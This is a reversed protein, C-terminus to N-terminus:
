EYYTVQIEGALDGPKSFSRTTYSLEIRGRTSNYGLGIGYSGRTENVASEYSKMKIPDVLALNGYVFPVLGLKSLIPLDYFHVKGQLQLLSLKGMDDGTFNPNGQIYTKGPPERLGISKFGKINDTRYRDNFYTKCMEFPTFMGFSLCSEFVLRSTLKFYRSYDIDVKHFRADGYAIQNKLILLNGETPYLYHDTTDLRYTHSLFNISSVPIENMLAQSAYDSNIINTRTYRGLGLTHTKNSTILYLGGGYKDELVHSDLEKKGKELRLLSQLRGPSFLQDHHEFMYQLSNSNVLYNVDFKSLDARGRLNRMTLGLSTKAGKNDAFLGLDWGLMNYEKFDFSALASDLEIGPHLAINCEKYIDLDHLTQAANELRKQLEQLNPAKRVAQLLKYLLQPDTKTNLLELTVGALPHAGYLDLKERTNM